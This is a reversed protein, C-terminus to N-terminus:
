SGVFINQQQGRGGRHMYGGPVAAPAAKLSMTAAAFGNASATGVPTPSVVGPDEPDAPNSRSAMFAYADITDDHARQVFNTYNAPASGSATAGGTHGTSGAIVTWVGAAGSWNHSPPDIGSATSTGSTASAATDFPGGDAALAVGRFVMVIGVNSANAGGTATLTVSTAVGNHFIWAVDLNTDAASGNGYQGVVNTWGAPTPIANNATDGVVATLIILDNAAMGGPYTVTTATNPSSSGVASGIFSIAV